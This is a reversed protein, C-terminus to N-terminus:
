GVQCTVQSSMHSSVHQAPALTNPEKVYVSCADLAYLRQLGAGKDQTSLARESGALFLSQFLNGACRLVCEFSLPHRRRISSVDFTLSLAESIAPGPPATPSLAAWFPSPDPATHHPQRNNITNNICANTSAPPLRGSAKDSLAKPGLCSPRTPAPRRARM